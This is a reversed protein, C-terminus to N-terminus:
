AKVLKQATKEGVGADDILKQIPYMALTRVSLIGVEKLKKLTAEGIGPLDDLNYKSKSESIEQEVSVNKKKAM